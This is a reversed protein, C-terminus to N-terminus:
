RLVAGNGHEGGEEIANRGWQADGHAEAYARCVIRARGARRSDRADEVSDARSNEHIRPEDLQECVLEQEAALHALRAVPLEQVREAAHKEATTEHGEEALPSSTSIHM